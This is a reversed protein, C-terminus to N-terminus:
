LHIQTVKSFHQSKQQLFLTVAVTAKVPLFAAVCMWDQLPLCLPCTMGADENPLAQQCHRWPEKFLHHCAMAGERDSLGTIWGWTIFHCLQDFLLASPLERKTCKIMKASKWFAVEEVKLVEVKESHGSLTAETLHSWSRWVRWLTLLFSPCPFRLLLRKQQCKWVPINWDGLCRVPSLLYWHLLVSTSLTRWNGSKYLVPSSCSSGTSFHCMLGSCWSSLM